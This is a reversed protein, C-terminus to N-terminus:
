KRNQVKNYEKLNFFDRPTEKGTCIILRFSTESSTKLNYLREPPPNSYLKMKSEVWMNNLLNEERIDSIIKLDHYIQSLTDEINM